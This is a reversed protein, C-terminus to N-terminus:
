VNKRNCKERPNGKAKNYRKWIEEWVMHVWWEVIVLAVVLMLCALLLILLLPMKDTSILLPFFIGTLVLAALLISVNLIITKM